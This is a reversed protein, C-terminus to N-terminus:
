AWPPSCPPAVGPWRRRLRMPPPSAEALAVAYAVGWRSRRPHGDRRLARLLRDREGPRIRRVGPWAAAGGLGGTLLCVRMPPFPGACGYLLGCPLTFDRFVRGVGRQDRGPRRRRPAPAGRVADTSPWLRRRPLRLRRLAPPVCAPPLAQVEADAPLRAARRRTRYQTLSFAPLLAPRM